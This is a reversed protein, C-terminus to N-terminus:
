RGLIQHDLLLVRRGFRAECQVIIADMVVIKAGIENRVGGGALGEAASDCTSQTRSHITQKWENM